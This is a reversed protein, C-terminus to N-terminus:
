AFHSRRKRIVPSNNHSNNINQGDNNFFDVAMCAAGIGCTNDHKIFVTKSKNDVGQTIKQAENGEVDYFKTVWIDKEKQQCIASFFAGDALIFVRKGKEENTICSVNTNKFNKIAEYPDDKNM